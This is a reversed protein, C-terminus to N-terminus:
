QDTVATAEPKRNKQKETKYEKLRSLAWAGTALHCGLPLMHTYLLHWTHRLAPPQWLTSVRCVSLVGPGTTRLEQGSPLRASAHTHVVLARHARASPNAVAHLRLPWESGGSWRKQAGAWCVVRFVLFGFFRFVLISLSEKSTPRLLRKRSVACNEPKRTKQTQSERPTSLAWAGTALHCGLLLMHTCLAHGTHGLAQTQWLTSVCRGSLVGPGAIRLEQM